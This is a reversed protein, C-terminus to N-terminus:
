SSRGPTSSQPAFSRSGTQILLLRDGRRPSAIARTPHCGPVSAWVVARHRFWSMRCDFRSSRQDPTDTGSHCIEKVSELGLRRYRTPGGRERYPWIVAPQMLSTQRYTRLCRRSSIRSVSMTWTMPTSVKTGSRHRQLPRGTFSKRRQWGPTKVGPLICKSRPPMTGTGGARALGGTIRAHGLPPSLATRVSSGSKM